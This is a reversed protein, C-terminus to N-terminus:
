GGTSNLKACCPLPQQSHLVVAYRILFRLLMAPKSARLHGPPPPSKTGRVRKQPQSTKTLIRSVWRSSLLFMFRRVIIYKYCYQLCHKVHSIYVLYFHQNLVITNIYDFPDTAFKLSLVLKEEKQLPLINEPFGSNGITEPISSSGGPIYVNSILQETAESHLLNLFWRACNDVRHFVHSEYFKIM